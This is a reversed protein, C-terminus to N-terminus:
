VSSGSSSGLNTFSLGLVVTFVVIVIGIIVGILTLLLYAKAYNKVNINTQSGFAYVLMLIFGITPISFLIMYGIYGWPSIPESNVNSVQPIYPASSYNQYQPYQPAGSYGQYVPPQATQTTQPYGYPNYPPTNYQGPIGQSGILKSGCSTCFTTGEPNNYGCSSCVM